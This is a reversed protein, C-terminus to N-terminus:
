KLQDKIAGWSAEEVGICPEPPCEQNLGLKTHVIVCETPYGPFCNAFQVCLIYPDPHKVIQVNTPLPDTVYLLQHFYWTWDWACSCLCASMGSALTGLTVCVLPSTTVTSQIVNAPYTIMFESCLMGNESPLAWIWMEVPYFGVGRACCVPVVPPEPNLYLGIYGVPPLQTHAFGAVMLMVVTLILIRKM